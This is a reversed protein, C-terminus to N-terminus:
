FSRSRNSRQLNSLIFVGLFLFPWFKESEAYLTRKKSFDFPGILVSRKFLPTEEIIRGKPDIIASIGTNASRLVWRREEVSRFVAQALHQYPASTKGFWADNTITILLEAGKEVAEKSLEPFIIEFCILIGVKGWPLNLVKIESGPSIDGPVAEKISGFFNEITKRLPLYEGFPVLHVKDYFSLKGESFLFATNYTREGEMRLAGFLLPTKLNQLFRLLEEVLDGQPFYQPFATEPWIILDPKKKLAQLTLLTHIKFITRQFTKDWKILQEINPQIIAVQYRPSPDKEQLRFLGYGLTLGIGMLAYLLAKRKGKFSLFLALNFFALLFSLLYAGGLDTIQLLIPMRWQSHALMAWPFGSLLHGRLYEVLTWLSAGGFAFATNKPLVTIGLSFVGFYLGLYLCLLFLIAMAGLYNIGGYRNVAVIIWYCTVLFAITGGFGGISFAEKPRQDKVAYLLPLLSFWGLPWFGLGPQSLGYFVGSLASLLLAKGLSPSLRKSWM